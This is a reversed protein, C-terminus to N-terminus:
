RMINKFDVPRISHTRTYDRQFADLKQNFLMMDNNYREIDALYFDVQASIYYLYLSAFADEVLLEASTDNKYGTFFAEAGAFKSFFTKHLSMDLESLWRIKTEEEITNPRLSDSRAICEKIKM